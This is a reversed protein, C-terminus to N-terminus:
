LSVASEKLVYTVRYKVDNARSYDDITICYFHDIWLSQRGILPKQDRDCKQVNQKAFIFGTGKKMKKKSECSLFGLWIFTQSYNLHSSIRCSNKYYVILHIKWMAMKDCLLPLFKAYFFIFPLVLEIGFRVISRVLFPSLSVSKIEM